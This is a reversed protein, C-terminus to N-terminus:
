LEVVEGDEVARVPFPYRGDVERIAAMSAEYSHYVHHFLVQKTPCDALRPFIEEPGFHAMECVILDTPESAEAPFDAADPYRLDGTFLLRRGEGQILYAYSPCGAAEMHRTPIATVTLNEDAYFSGAETLRLRIRDEAFSKDAALILGRLADSLGEETLYLDFSADKYFWSSLSCLAPLGFTHDGHAHTTFVARLKEFPVGYRTLLDAVPAGADILYAANGTELLTSTCYRNAMPVGHSTGLFTLKM